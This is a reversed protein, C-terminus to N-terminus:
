RRPPKMSGPCPGRRYEHPEVLKKDGYLRLEKAIGCFSCKGYTM